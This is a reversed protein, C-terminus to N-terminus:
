IITIHEEKVIINENDLTVDFYVGDPIGDSNINETLSGLMYCNYNKYTLKKTWHQHGCFMGIINYNSLLELLEKRNRIMLNEGDVTYAWYNSM